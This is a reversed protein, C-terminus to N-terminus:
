KTSWTSSISNITSKNSQPRTFSSSIPPAVAQEIPEPPLPWNESRHRKEDPYEEDNDFAPGLTSGGEGDDALITPRANRNSYLRKSGTRSDISHRSDDFPSEDMPHDMSQRRPTKSGEM